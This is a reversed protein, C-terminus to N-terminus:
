GKAVKFITALKPKSADMLLLNRYTKAALIIMGALLAVQIAVATLFEVIGIRGSIYAVPAMIYSIPPIMAIKQIMSEQASSFMSFMYAVMILMTVIGTASQQDETKSCASGLVGAFVGFSLLTIILEIFFVLFGVVGYSTFIALNFQSQVNAQAMDINFVNKMVADVILAGGVGVIVTSTVFTLMGVVKGMLLAMPRVSVLLSEALKSQKEENVSTIVYSGALSAVIMILMSFGVTVGSLESKSITHNQEEAYEAATVVGGKSVGSNISKLANEDLKMQRKRAAEFIDKGYNVAHDLSAVQVDSTDAIVANVDYGKASPQIVVLIDKAGLMSMLDDPFADSKNYVTVDEPKLGGNKVEVEPVIDMRDLEFDTGNYLFLHDAQINQLTDAMSAATNSGSKSMMYMFPKMFMIMLIMVIASILFGKNKLTQLFTFRFVKGFGKLSYINERSGNKM